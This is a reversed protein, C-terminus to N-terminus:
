LLKRIGNIGFHIKDYYWLVCLVEGRYPDGFHTETDEVKCRNSPAVSRFTKVTRGFFTLLHKGNPGSRSGHARDDAIMNRTELTDKGGGGAEQQAKSEYGGMAMMSMLVTVVAWRLNLDPWAPSRVLPNGGQRFETRPVEHLMSCFDRRSYIYIYMNKKKTSNDLAAEVLERPM